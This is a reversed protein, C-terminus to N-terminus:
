KGTHSHLASFIRIRLSMVQCPFVLIVRQLGVRSVTLFLLLISVIAWCDCSMLFVILTLCGAREEGMLIIAFSSEIYMYLLVLVLCLAGVLLPLLLLCHNNIAAGM